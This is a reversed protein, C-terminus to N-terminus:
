TFVNSEGAHQKARIEIQNIIARTYYRHAYITQKVISREREVTVQFIGRKTDLSYLPTYSTKGLTSNLRINIWAPIRARRSEGMQGNYLGNLYVTDSFVNTAIHGNGISPM